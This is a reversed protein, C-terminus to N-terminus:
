QLWRQLGLEDALFSKTGAPGNVELKIPGNNSELGLRYRLFPNCVREIILWECILGLVEDDSHFCLSYGNEVEVVRKLHSLIQPLVDKQSEGSFPQVSPDQHMYSQM